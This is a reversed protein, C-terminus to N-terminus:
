ETAQRATAIVIAGGAMLAAGLMTQWNVKEKLFVVALAVSFVLSVKDLSSVRSADGLKLAAFTFLSSLCTVVGALLLYVWARREIRAVEGLKGQWLTVGWSVGLIMLSQVAFGLNSDVNKFGVKSLTVVIAASVAALLAYVVWM